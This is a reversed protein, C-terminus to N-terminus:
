KVAIINLSILIGGFRRVSSDNFLGFEDVKEISKFGATQLYKVILEEFLGTKHFDHPTLQGGFMMLMIEYLQNTSLGDVSFLAALKRLDPVSMLLRGNACLIRHCESLAPLLEQRHGLHEFVHSAYIEVVSEDEIFSMDTCNGIFDVHPGDQVDLIKWSEKFTNGGIHIKLTTKSEM